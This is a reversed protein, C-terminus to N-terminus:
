KKILRVYVGINKDEGTVDKSKILIINKDEESDNIEAMKLSSVLLPDETNMCFFTAETKGYWKTTNNRRYSLPILHMDFLDVGPKVWAPSSKTSSALLSFISVGKVQKLMITLSDFDSKVPLRWDLKLEELKKQLLILAFLNLLVGNTKNNDDRHYCFAPIKNEFATKWEEESTSLVFDNSISKLEKENLNSSAWKQKGITSYNSLSLPLVNRNDPNSKEISDIPPKINRIIERQKDIEEQQQKIKTKLISLEEPKEKQENKRATTIEQYKGDLWLTDINKENNSASVLSYYLWTTDNYIIKGDLNYIPHLIIKKNVKINQAIIKKLPLISFLFVIYKVYRNRM